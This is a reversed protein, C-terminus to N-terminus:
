KQNSGCMYLGSAFFTQKVIKYVPQRFQSQQFPFTAKRSRETDSDLFHAGRQYQLGRIAVVFFLSQSFSGAFDQMANPMHYMHITSCSYYQFFPDSVTFLLHINDVSQLQHTLAINAVFCLNITFNLLAAVIKLLRYKLPM